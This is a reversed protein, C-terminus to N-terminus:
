VSDDEDLPRQAPPRWRPGPPVARELFLVVSLGLLIVIIGAVTLVDLKLPLLPVQISLDWVSAPRGTGRVVNREGVLGVVFLACGAGVVHLLWNRQRVGYWFSFAAATCGAAVFLSALLIQYWTPGATM